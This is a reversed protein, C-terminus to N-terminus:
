VFSRPRRMRYRCPCSQRRLASAGRMSRRRRAVPSRTRLPATRRARTYSHATLQRASMLAILNTRPTQGEIVRRRFISREESRRGPTRETEPLQGRVNVSIIAEVDAHDRAVVCTFVGPAISADMTRVSLSKLLLMPRRSRADSTSPLVGGSSGSLRRVMRAFPGNPAKGFLRSAHSRAKSM